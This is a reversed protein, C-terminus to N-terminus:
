WRLESISCAGRRDSEDAVKMLNQVTGAMESRGHVPSKVMPLHRGVHEYGSNPLKAADTRDVLEIPAIRGRSDLRIGQRRCPPNEIQYTLCTNKQVTFSDEPRRYQSARKNLQRSHKYLCATGDSSDDGVGGLVPFVLYNAGFFQFTKEALSKVSCPCHRFATEVSLRVDERLNLLKRLYGSVFVNKLIILIKTLNSM